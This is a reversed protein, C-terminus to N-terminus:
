GPDTMPPLLLEVEVTYPAGECGLSNLAEHSPAFLFNIGPAMDVHHTSCSASATEEVPEELPECLGWRV